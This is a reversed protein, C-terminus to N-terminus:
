VGPLPYALLQQYSRVGRFGFFPQSFFFFCFFLLDDQPPNCYFSNEPLLPLLFFRM